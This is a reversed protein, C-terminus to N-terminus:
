KWSKRLAAHKSQTAVDQFVGLVLLFFVFIFGNEAPVQKRCTAGLVVLEHLFILM